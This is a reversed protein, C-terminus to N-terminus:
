PSLRTAIFSLKGLLSAVVYNAMATNSQNVVQWGLSMRGLRAETQEGLKKAEM